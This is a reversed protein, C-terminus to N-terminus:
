DDQIEKLACTKKEEKSNKMKKQKKKVERKGDM